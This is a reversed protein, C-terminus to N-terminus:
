LEILKVEDLSPNRKRWRAVKQRIDGVDPREIQAEDYTLYGGTSSVIRTKMMAVRQERSDMADPMPDLGLAQRVTFGKSSLYYAKPWSVGLRKAHQMLSATVGDFYFEQRVRSRPNIITFGKKLLGDRVIEDIQDLFVLFAWQDSPHRPFNKIPVRYDPDDGAKDLHYGWMQARQQLNKGLGVYAVKSKAHVLAFAGPKAPINQDRIM